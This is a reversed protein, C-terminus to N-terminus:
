PPPIPQALGVVIILWSGGQTTEGTAVISMPYTGKQIGSPIFVTLEISTLEGPHLTVSTPTFEAVYGPIKSHTELVLLESTNLRTAKLTIFVSVSGGSDPITVNPPRLLVDFDPNAFPPLGAMNTAMTTTTGTTTRPAEPQAYQGAFGVFAALAVLVAISSVAILVKRV